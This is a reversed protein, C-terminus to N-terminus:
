GGHIRSVTAFAAANEDDVGVAGPALVLFAGVAM